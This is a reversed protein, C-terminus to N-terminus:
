SPDTLRDSRRLRRRIAVVAVVVLALVSGWFLVFAVAVLGNPPDDDNGWFSFLVAQVTLMVVVSGAGVYALTRNTAHTIAKWM